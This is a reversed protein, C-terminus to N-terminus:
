HPQRLAMSEYDCFQMHACSRQSGNVGPKSISRCTEAVLFIVQCCRMVVTRAHAVLWGATIYCMYICFRLTSELSCWASGGPSRAETSQVFGSPGLIALLQTPLDEKAYKPQDDTVPVGSKNLHGTAEGVFKLGCAGGKM